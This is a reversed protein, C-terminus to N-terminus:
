MYHICTARVICKTKLASGSKTGDNRLLQVFCIVLLRLRNTVIKAGVRGGLVSFLTHPPAKLLFPSNLSLAPVKRLTPSIEATNKRNRPSKGNNLYRLTGQPHWKIGRSVASNNERAREKFDSMQYKLFRAQTNSLFSFCHTCLKRCTIYVRQECM